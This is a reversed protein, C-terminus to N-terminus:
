LRIKLKEYPFQSLRLFTFQFGNTDYGNHSGNTNM